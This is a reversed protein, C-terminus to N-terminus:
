TGEQRHSKGAPGDGGGQLLATVLSCESLLWFLGFLGCLGSSDYVDGDPTTRQWFLMMGLFVLSLAACVVHLVVARRTQPRQRALRWAALLEGLLVAGMGVALLPLVEAELSITM